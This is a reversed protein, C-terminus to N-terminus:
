RELLLKRIDDYNDPLTENTKELFDRYLSVDLEVKELKANASGLKRSLIVISILASVSVAILVITLEM